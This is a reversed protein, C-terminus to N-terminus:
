KTRRHKRRLELPSVGFAKRFERAFTSYSRFGCRHAITKAPLEGDLLLKRACERRCARILERATGARQERLLRALQFRSLGLRNAIAGVRLSQEEKIAEEVAAGMKQMLATVM